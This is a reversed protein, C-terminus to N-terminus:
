VPGLHPVIPQTTIDFEDEFGFLIRGKTGVVFIVSDHLGNQESSFVAFTVIKDLSVFSWTAASLSSPPSGAQQACRTHGLQPEIIVSPWLGPQPKAESDDSWHSDSVVVSLLLCLDQM